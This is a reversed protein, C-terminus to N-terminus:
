MVINGLWFAAVTSIINFAWKKVDNEYKGFLIVYLASLSFLGSFAVAIWFKKDDKQEAEVIVQQKLQNLKPNGDGKTKDSFAIDNIELAIEKRDLQDKLGLSVMVISIIVVAVSLIKLRNMM